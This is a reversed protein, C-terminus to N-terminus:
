PKPNPNFKLLLVCFRLYVRSCVGPPPLVSPTDRAEVVVGGGGGEGRPVEEEKAGLFKRPTPNSCVHTTYDNHPAVNLVIPHVPVNEDGPFPMANFFYDPRFHDEEGQQTEEVAKHQMDAPVDGHRLSHRPYDTDKEEEIAQKVHTPTLTVHNIMRIAIIYTYIYEHTPTHTHTHTHTHTYTNTHTTTLMVHNIM